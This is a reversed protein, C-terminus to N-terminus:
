LLVCLLLSKSEIPQSVKIAFQGVFPEISLFASFDLIVHCILPYVHCYFSEVSAFIKFISM